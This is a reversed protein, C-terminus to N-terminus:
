GHDTELALSDELKCDLQKFKDSSDVKKEPRLLFLGM